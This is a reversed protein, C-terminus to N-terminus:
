HILYLFLSAVKVDQLLYFPPKVKDFVLNMPAGPYPNHRSSVKMKINSIVVLLSLIGYGIELGKISTKTGQNFTTMKKSNFFYKGGRFFNELKTHKLREKLPVM